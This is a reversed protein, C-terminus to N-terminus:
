PENDREIRANRKLEQVIRKYERDAIMSTLKKRCEDQTKQDLPRIGAYDRKALRIIHFGTPLETLPGVDGDHMQFLISEVEIPKIEGRRQGFGEGNNYKSMGDDYKKALEAFDEGKKARAMIQEALNRAEEPSSHQGSAIFIDQWEVRDEVQFESPHEEYYEVIQEHGIPDIKEYIRSRMYEMAMFSREVQRRIGGLTLGQAKLIAKFEEDSQINFGSKAANSKMERVRKDFEKHAAAELKEAFEPKLKKMREYADSLIVEREILKDLEREFIEKQVRTREPEPLNAIQVLFQYTAERVEQDLIATDNVVARIRASVQGDIPGNFQRDGVTLISLGTFRSPPPSDPQQMRATAPSEHETRAAVTQPLEDAVLNPRQSGCGVTILGCAFLSFRQWRM